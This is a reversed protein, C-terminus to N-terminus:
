KVVFHKTYTSKPTKVKVVYQGQVSPSKVKVGQSTSIVRGLLDTVTVQLDKEGYVSVNFEDDSVPNPYVVLNKNNVIEQVNTVQNTFIIEFRDDFRGKQTSFAYTDSSTILQITNNYNDKLYVKDVGNLINLGDFQFGHIGQNETSYGLKVVMQEGEFPMANIALVDNGVVTYVSLSPNMIKSADKDLEYGVASGEVFQFLAADM